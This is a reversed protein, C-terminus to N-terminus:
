MVAIVFAFVHNKLLINQDLCSVSLVCLVLTLNVENAGHRKLWPSYNSVGANGLLRFSVFFSVNIGLHCVNKYIMTLKEIPCPPLLEPIKVSFVLKQLLHKCIGIDVELYQWWKIVIAFLLVVLLQSWWKWDNYLKSFFFEVTYLFSEEQPKM